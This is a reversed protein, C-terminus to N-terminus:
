WRSRRHLRAIGILTHCAGLTNKFFIQVFAFSGLYTNGILFTNFVQYWLSIMKYTLKLACVKRKESISWYACFLTLPIWSRSLFYLFTLWLCGAFRQVLRNKLNFSNPYRTPYRTNSNNAHLSFTAFLSILTM